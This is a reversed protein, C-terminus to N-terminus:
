GDQHRTRTELQGFVLSWCRPLPGTCPKLTTARFSPSRPQAAGTPSGDYRRCPLAPPAHLEPGPVRVRSAAGAQAQAPSHLSGPNVRCSCSFLDACASPRTAAAPERLRRRQRRQRRTLSRRAAVGSGQLEIVLALQCGQLHFLQHLLQRCCAIHLANRRHNVRQDAM